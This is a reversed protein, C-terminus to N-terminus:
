KTKRKKHTAKHKRRKGGMHPNKNSNNNAAGNATEVGKANLNRKQKNLMARLQEPTMNEPDCECDCSGLMNGMKISKYIINNPKQAAAKIAIAVTAVALL